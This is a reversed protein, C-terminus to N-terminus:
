TSRPIYIRRLIRCGSRSFIKTDFYFLLMLSHESRSLHTRRCWGLNLIWGMRSVKLRWLSPHSRPGEQKKERESRGLPARGPEEIYAKQLKYIGELQDVVSLLSILLELAGSQLFATKLEDVTGALVACYMCLIYLGIYTCVARHISTTLQFLPFHSIPLTVAGHWVNSRISYPYMFTPVMLFNSLITESQSLYRCM